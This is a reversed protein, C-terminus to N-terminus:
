ATVTNMSHVLGDRLTVQEGSVESANRPRWVRDGELPIEVERDWFLDGPEYGEELAQAYVFPKFTSGPQRRSRAVRDFASQAFDRSGVWARVHGSQPDIAVFSAELRTKVTRLSDMFRREGRLSDLLSADDRGAVRGQKFAATERIFAEALDPRATWFRGFPEIRERYRPYSALSVSPPAASARGWEVDAVAQLREGQLKVVAEAVRQLDLDLTTHVVLGDAYIDCGHDDAWRTLWDRVYQTFHPAKSAQQAQREFRLVVPLDKLRAYEEGALMGHKVMQGLVVNRRRQAREPNRVPNYYSTGKLMGVLTAADIVSLDEASKSFYTRAALEIGYVNYLFPVTNLYTELIEEKTYASEIKLATIIEKLKRTVTVSRGISEPYLNRALQQTITSGGQVDGVLTHALASVLRRVDIGRHTYFRHDETAVLAEKVGPAIEDLEVWERNLRRFRTLEQGETSLIIAPREVKARKLADVSPTFPLLVLAYLLLLMLVAMGAGAAGAVLYFGQRWRSRSRDTVLRAYRGGWQVLRVKALRSRFSTRKGSGAEPRAGAEKADSEEHAM